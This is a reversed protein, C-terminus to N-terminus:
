VVEQKLATVYNKFCEGRHRYDKFQDFSACGPSLLIKSRPTAKAFACRLANELTACLEVKITPELALQIKNACEGIAFVGEVTDKFAEVWPDFCLNKDKGGVILYIQKELNKVAYVVSEVNTAKSDNYFAIENLKDVFELRHEPKKFSRLAVDLFSSDLGFMKLVEFALFLLEVGLAKEIVLPLFDCYERTKRLQLYCNKNKLSFLAPISNVAPHLSTIQKEFQIYTSSSVFAKGSPKLCKLINFKAFAYAAFSPYRDMHDPTIELIIALDLCTVRLTELQYSSLECVCVDEQQNTLLYSSFPVGVNGLAVAKVGCSRLLHTIFLTMTTKGNSGTIGICTKKIRSLAFEAEGIIPIKHSLVQQVVLHEWAIGPSLIAKDIGKLDLSADEPYVQILSEYTKLWSAIEEQQPEKDCCTVTHGDRLLVEVAARGSVGLGIVLFHM